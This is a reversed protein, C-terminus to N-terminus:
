GNLSAAIRQALERLGELQDKGAASRLSVMGEMLDMEKMGSVIQAM